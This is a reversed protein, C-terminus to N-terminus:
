ATGLTTKYTDALAIARREYIAAIALLFDSKLTPDTM